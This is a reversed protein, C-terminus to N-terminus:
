RSNVIHEVDGLEFFTQLGRSINHNFIGDGQLWVQHVLCIGGHNEVLLDSDSLVLSSLEILNLPIVVRFIVSHPFM